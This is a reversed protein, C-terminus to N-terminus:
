GRHEEEHQKFMAVLEAARQERDPEADDPFQTKVLLYTV